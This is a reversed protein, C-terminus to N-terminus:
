GERIAWASSVEERFDTRNRGVQVHGKRIKRLVQQTVAQGKVGAGNGYHSRHIKTFQNGQSSVESTNGMISAAYDTRFFCM